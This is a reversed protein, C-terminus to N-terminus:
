PGSRGPRSSRAVVAHRNGASAVLCQPHLRYVEPLPHPVFREGPPPSASSAPSTRPGGETASSRHTARVGTSLRIPSTARAIWSPAGPVVHLLGLEAESLARGSKSATQRAFQRGACGTETASTVAFPREGQPQSSDPDHAPLLQTISHPAGDRGVQRVVQRGACRKESDGQALFGTADRAEVDQAAADIASRGNTRSRVRM